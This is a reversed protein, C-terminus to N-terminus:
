ATAKKFAGTLNFLAVVAGVAKEIFAKLTDVHIMDKWAQPLVDLGSLVIAVVAELKAKGNGPVEVSKVIEIIYPAIGLLLRMTDILKSM